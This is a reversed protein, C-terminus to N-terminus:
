LARRSKLRMRSKMTLMMNRTAMNARDIACAAPLFRYPNSAELHQFDVRVWVPFNLFGLSVLNDQMPSYNLDMARDITLDANNAVSYSSIIKLENNNSYSNLHVCFLCFICLIKLIQTKM